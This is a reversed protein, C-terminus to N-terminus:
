LLIPIEVEYEGDHNKFIDGQIPYLSKLKEAVEYINSSSSIIIFSAVKFDVILSEINESETRSGHFAVSGGSLKSPHWNSGLYLRVIEILHHRLLVAYSEQTHIALISWAPVRKAINTRANKRGTILDIDKWSWRM